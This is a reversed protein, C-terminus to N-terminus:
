RPVSGLQHVDQHTAVALEGATTIWGRYMGVTNFPTLV